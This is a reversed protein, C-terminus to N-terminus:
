PFIERWTGRRIGFSGHTCVARRTMARDFHLTPAKQNCCPEGEWISHPGSIRRGIVSGYIVTHDGLVVNTNTGYLGGFLRFNEGTRVASPTGTGSNTVLLLKEGPEAGMTVNNGAEFDGRVYITMPGGGAVVHAGDGLTLSTYYHTGAALTLTDNPGVNPDASWTASPEALPVPSEGPRGLNSVATPSSTVWDGAAGGLLDVNVLIVGSGRAGVNASDGGNTVPHYPGLRSDYSDITSRPTLFADMSSLILPGNAAFLGWQFPYIAQDATARIRAQAQGGRVSVSALIDLDKSLCVQQSAATVTIKATGSGFTVNPEDAYTSSASLQAIARHLGAEAILLARASAQQNYAIQDETSSITLFTTGALLLVAMVLMVIV